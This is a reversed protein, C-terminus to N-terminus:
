TARQSVCGSAPPYRELSATVYQSEHSEEIVCDSWSVEREAVLM